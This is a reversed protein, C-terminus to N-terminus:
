IKRDKFYGYAVEMGILIFFVPIALIVPNVAM